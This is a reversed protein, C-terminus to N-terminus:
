GQGAGSARRTLVWWRWAVLPWLLALGPLLLPRMAHAGRAAPDVREIGFLLFAMGLVAGVALWGLGLEVVVAAAGAVGM